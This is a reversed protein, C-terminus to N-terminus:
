VFLTRKSNISINFTFYYVNANIRFVRLYIDQLKKKPPPAPATHTVKVSVNFQVVNFSFHTQGRLDLSHLFSTLSM